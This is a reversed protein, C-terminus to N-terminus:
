VEITKIEAWCVGQFLALSILQQQRLIYECYTIFGKHYVKIIEKLAQELSQRSDCPYKEQFFHPQIENSM